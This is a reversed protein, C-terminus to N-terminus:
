KASVRPAVVRDLAFGVLVFPLSAVIIMIGPFLVWWWWGHVSADFAIANNLIGGWTIM